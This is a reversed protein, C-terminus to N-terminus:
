LRAPDPDIAGPSRVVACEGARARTPARRSPRRRAPTNASALQSTAHARGAVDVLSVCVGDGAFDHASLARLRQEILMRPATHRAFSGDLSLGDASGAALVLVGIPPRGSPVNFPQNM